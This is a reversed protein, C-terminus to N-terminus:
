KPHQVSMSVVTKLNPAEEAKINGPESTALSPIVSSLIDYYNRGRFEEAIVLGRM